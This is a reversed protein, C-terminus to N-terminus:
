FHWSKFLELCKISMTECRKHFSLSVNQRQSILNPDHKKCNNRECSKRLSFCDKLSLGKVAFSALYGEQCNESCMVCACVYVCVYAFVGVCERVSAHVCVCMRVIVCVYFLLFIYEEEREKVCVCVSFGLSGNQKGGQFPSMSFIIHGLFSTFFGLFHSFMDEQLCCQIQM